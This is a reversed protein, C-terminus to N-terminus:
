LGSYRALVADLQVIRDGDQQHLLASRLSESEQWLDGNESAQQLGLTIMEIALTLDGSIRYAKALFVRAKIDNPTANLVKVLGAKTRPIIREDGMQYLSEFVIMAKRIQGHYALVNGLNAHAATFGPVLQISLALLRLAHDNQGNRARDLGANNAALAAIQLTKPDGDKIRAMWVPPPPVWKKWLETVELLVSLGVTSIGFEIGRALIASPDRGQFLANIAYLQYHEGDLGDPVESLSRGLYDLGKEANRSSLYSRGIHGWFVAESKKLERHSLVIIGFLVIGSLALGLQNDRRSLRLGSEVLCWAILLSPGVSSFYFYRSSYDDFSSGGFVPLVVGAWVIADLVPGRRYLVLIIALGILCVGVAVDFSGPGDVFARPLWHPSLFTRGLYALTTKLIHLPDFIHSVNAMQAHRPFSALFWLSIGFCPLVIAPATKAIWSPAAGRRWAFYLALIAFGMAGGHCTAAVILLVISGAYWLNLKSEAYRCYFVIGLCGAALCGLYSQCSPWYPIVYHSVNFLFLIGTTTALTISFGLQHLSWALVWVTLLHAFILSLHYALPQDGWFAHVAMFFFTTSPRGSSNHEPSFLETVDEQVTEIHDLYDFDDEFFPFLRADWLQAFGLVLVLLLYACWQRMSRLCLSKEASTKNSM